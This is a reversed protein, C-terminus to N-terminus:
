LLPESKDIGISKKTNKHMQMAVSLFLAAAVSMMYVNFTSYYAMM